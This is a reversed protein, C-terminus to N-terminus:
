LPTAAGDLNQSISLRRSIPDPTFITVTGTTGREIRSRRYLDDYSLMALTSSSVTRRVGDLNTSSKRLRGIGDYGYAATAAMAAGWAVFLGFLFSM